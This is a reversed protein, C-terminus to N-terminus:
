TSVLGWFKLNSSLRVASEPQAKQDYRKSLQSRNDSDAMEDDEMELAVEAERRKVQLLIFENEYFDDLELM